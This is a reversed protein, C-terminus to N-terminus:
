SRLIRPSEGFYDRLVTGVLIPVSLLICNEWDFKYKM